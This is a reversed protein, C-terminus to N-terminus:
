PVSKSSSDADLRVDGVDLGFSVIAIDRSRFSSLGPEADLLLFCLFMISGDSESFSITVFRDAVCNLVVVSIIM